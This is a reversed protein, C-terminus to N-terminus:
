PDALFFGYPSPTAGESRQPLYHEGLLLAGLEGRSGVGVKRYLAKLHDNVTHVSCGLRSSVQQSTLGKLVLECVERERETMGYARMVLGALVVPRPREVVVGTGGDTGLPMAHLTVPASPGATTVAVAASETGGRSQAAVLQRLLVAIRDQDLEALYADAASTTAVVVGEPDLTVLGPPEPIAASDCAARLFARRYGAGLVEGVSRAVDVDRRTFASEGFRYATLVGWPTGSARLVVRLEDFAGVPVMTEDYRRVRGAPDGVSLRLAAAPIGRRIMEPYTNVDDSGFELRFLHLEREPDLTDGGPPPREWVATCHTFLLTAPDISGWVAVDYGVAARLLPDARRVLEEHTPGAGVVEAVRDALRAATASEAGFGPGTM